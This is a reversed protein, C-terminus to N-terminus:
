CICQYDVTYCVDANELDANCNELIKGCKEMYIIMKVAKLAKFIEVNFELVKWVKGPDTRARSVTLDNAMVKVGSYKDARWRLRDERLRTDSVTLDNAM